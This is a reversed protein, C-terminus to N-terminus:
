FAAAQDPCVHSRRLQLRAHRLQFPRRDGVCPYATTTIKEKFRRPAAGMAPAPDEADARPEDGALSEPENPMDVCRGDVDFKWGHYVCRLGCEENRGFFLSAGRHPCHRDLLGIRGDTDRFAVLEEGLLTVRVPTSDPEPVESSLLAPIWYRRMLKGMPTGAATQTLLENEEKSLM